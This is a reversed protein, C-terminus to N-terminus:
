GCVPLRWPLYIICMTHKETERSQTDNCWGYFILLLESWFLRSIALYVILEDFKSYTIFIQLHSSLYFLIFQFLM